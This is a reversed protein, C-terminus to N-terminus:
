LSNLLRLVQKLEEPKVKDPFRGEKVCDKFYRIEEAYANTQPLDIDGTDNDSATSLDLIKGDNQYVLCKGDKCEVLAQEFLFRFSAQFPYPAAYWSCETTIFFGPFQYVASIYDQKPLKVRHEQVNEPTGFAYICFDLDHIHLDFPILGSRKEDLMWNDWSWRPYGNLRSMQGSLLRGYKGSDYLEKILLYEPWFRLVQAVMFCVHNERATQYARDVDEENLSIPKECIVHIGRQM